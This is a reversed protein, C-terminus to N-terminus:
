LYTDKHDLVRYLGSICLQIQEVTVAMLCLSFSLKRAAVTYSNRMRFFNQM